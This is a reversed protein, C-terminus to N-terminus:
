EVVVRQVWSLGNVEWRLLYIGAPYYGLDLHYNRMHPAVKQVPRISRGMADLVSFTGAEPLQWSLRVPGPTPNPTAQIWYDESDPAGIHTLDDITIIDSQVICGNADILEIVYNGLPLANPTFDPLLVGDRYINWSIPEIGGQASYTISGTAGGNAPEVQLIDLFIPDPGEIQLPAAASCGSADVVTVVYNGPLLNNVTAASQGNPWQFTYTGAGGDASVMAIGDATNFCSASSLMTATTSISCGSTAECDIQGSVSSICGRGDTVIVLYNEGDYILDEETNGEYFYHGDGGSVQLDLVASGNGFCNYSVQLDLVESDPQNAADRASICVSGTESFGSGTSSSSIRIYYTQGAALSGITLYGDCALPNQACYIEELEECEGAYVSLAQTFDADALLQVSGSAPAIISFWISADLFPDCSIEPGNFAANNNTAFVCNGDLPINLATNCIMNDPSDAQYTEISTCLNGEVTAFAGNIQLYYTRNALLDELLLNEGYENTAIEQLNGCNGAFITLTHAFDAETNIQLPATNSTTFQYWIGARALAARSPLPDPFQAWYNQGDVCDGDIVLSIAAQCHENDPGSPPANVYDLDLCFTGRPVGFGTAQGSVRLFYNRGAEVYFYHEEGTFGHEDRNECSVANLDTCEGRLITIVDNFDAETNIKLWGTQTTEFTYWLSAVNAPSCDPQPGDFLALQTSATLCTDTAIEITQAKTCLENIEGSATLKINDIGIWWGWTAGDDYLFGVRMRKSRYASLDITQTEYANMFPGGVDSFYGSVTEFQETEMDYVGVLLSENEEWTRLILDFTLTMNAGATGDIEPSIFQVTSYPAEQGIGDEDFYLFCSGNMSNISTNENNLYGFQWNNEGNIISATWGNPTSCDNFTETILNTGTGEGILQINDIAAWWNWEGGDAYHISLQMQESAYFSLDANITIFESFQEGTNNDGQFYAVRYYNNGDFVMIELSDSGNYNRFHVDMSLRLTTYATGDFAPSSINLDFAATNQGTADDDIILMCSGDITSGDSDDNQPLGVYWDVESNGNLEATWNSPFVCDNFDESLLVEQASLRPLISGLFLILLLLYQRSM